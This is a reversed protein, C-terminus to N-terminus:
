DLESFLLESLLELLLFLPDSLLVIDSFHHDKVLLAFVLLITVASKYPSHHSLFHELPHHASQQVNVVPLFFLM